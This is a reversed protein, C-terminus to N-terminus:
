LGDFWDDRKEKVEALKADVDVRRVEHEPESEPVPSRSNCISDAAEKIQEPTMTM